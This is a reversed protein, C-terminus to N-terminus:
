GVIGSRTEVERLLLAGGDSSIYGGDFRAQAARKGLRHIELRPGSCETMSPGGEPKHM